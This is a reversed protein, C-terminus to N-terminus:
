ANFYQGWEEETIDKQLVHHVHDGALMQFALSRYYEATAESRHTCAALALAVGRPGLVALEDHIKTRAIHGGTGFTQKWAYSVYNKHPETGDYKVFLMRRNKLCQARLGELHEPSAGQLVLADVFIAFFPLLKARFPADTKQTGSIFIEYSEGDWRLNDGFRLRTDSVRLPFPCLLVIAAAYNRLKQTKKPNGPLDAQALMEFGLEFIETYTPIKHIKVENMPTAKNKRSEHFNMRKKLYDVLDDPVGIYRAFHTIHVMSSHITAEKLPRDRSLLSREYAAAMEQTLLIAGGADTAVKAFECVKQVVSMTVSPSPAAIDEGAFGARMNALASQWDSPLDSEPVSFTRKRTLRADPTDKVHRRSIQGTANDLARLLPGNEFLVHLTKRLTSFSTANMKHTKDYALFAEASIDSHDPSHDELFSLLRDVQRLHTLTIAGSAIHANIDASCTEEWRPQSLVDELSRLDVAGMVEGTELAKQRIAQEVSVEASPDSTLFPIVPALRRLADSDVHEAAFSLFSAVSMQAGTDNQAFALYNDAARLQPMNLSENGLAHLVAARASAWYGHHLLETSKRDDRTTEVGDRKRRIERLTTLLEPLIPSDPCLGFFVKKLSTAIGYSRTSFFAKVRAPDIADNHAINCFKLFEDAKELDSALFQGTVIGDYARQDSVGIWDQDQLITRLTKLALEGSVMEFGRWNSCKRSSKM